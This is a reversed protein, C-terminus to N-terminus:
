ALTYVCVAKRPSRVAALIIRHGIPPSPGYFYPPPAGGPILGQGKRLHASRMVFVKVWEGPVGWGQHHNTM